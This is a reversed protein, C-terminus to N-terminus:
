PPPGSFAATNVFQLQSHSCSAATFSAQMIAEIYLHDAKERNGGKLVGNIGNLSLFLANQSKQRL